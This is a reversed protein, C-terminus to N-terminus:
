VNKFRDFIRTDRLDKLMVMIPQNPQGEWVECIKDILAQREELESIRKYQILLVEASERCLTEMKSEDLVFRGAYKEYYLEKRTQLREVLGGLYGTPGESMM